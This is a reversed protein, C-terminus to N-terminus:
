AAHYDLPPLRVMGTAVSGCGRIRGDTDSRTVDHEQLIGVAGGNAHDSGHCARHNGEAGIESNM